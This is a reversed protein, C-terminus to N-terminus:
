RRPKKPGRNFIDVPAPRRRAPMMAGPTAPRSSPASSTRSSPASPRSTAKNPPSSSRIRTSPAVPKMIKRSPPPRTTTKHAPETEEDDDFLDDVDDADDGFMDDDLMTPTGASAGSMPEKSSNSVPKRGSMADRLRKERDELSPGSSPSGLAGPSRAGSPRHRTLIKLAPQNAIKYEQSMGAPARQVQGHRLGSTLTNLKSRQSMEKAERRAKTLVSAGDTMKTRSGGGWTLSSPGANQLARGKTLPVGGNHARMGYDRPIKPLRKLDVFRSVHDQKHQKLANMSNMLIAQASAVEEDHETKYKKYVQAWKTPDRPVYNKTQWKPIDRVIFAKWLEATEGKIHPSKQEIIHLQEPNTITKLIPYAVQYSTYGIDYLDKINRLCTAKCLSYLSKVGTHEEM